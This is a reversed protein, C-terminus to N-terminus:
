ALRLERDAAIGDREVANDYASCPAERGSRVGPRVGIQCGLLTLENQEFLRQRGSSLQGRSCWRGNVHEPVIRREVPVTLGARADWQELARSDGAAKVPMQMNLTLPRDGDLSPDAAHAIVAHGGVGDPKSRESDFGDGM